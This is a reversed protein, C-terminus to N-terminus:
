LEPSAVGPHVGPYLSALGPHVGPLLGLHEVLLQAGASGASGARREPCRVWFTGDRQVLRLLPDGNQPTVERENVM